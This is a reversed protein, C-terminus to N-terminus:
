ARLHFRQLLLKLRRDMEASGFGLTQIDELRERASPGSYFSSYTALREFEELASAVVWNGLAAGPDVNDFREGPVLFPERTDVRGTQYFSDILRTLADVAVSRAGYDRAIRALSALRLYSPQRSCLGNLTNFGVELAAFREDLSMSTDRCAAYAALAKEVELSGDSATTAEWRNFLLTGYPLKALAQRWDYAATGEIKESLRKRREATLSTAGVADVLFGASSLKESRDKKCSFLNLLYADPTSDPMFSVLANIGPVLRYSDYGIEGFRRVLDLNFHADVKIEYMVLPSLDAFFQKGGKLINGEEGEADIKVFDINKWDFRILCEDLTVVPVIESSTLSPNDRVLANLESNDNLSLMATGSSGSVASRQIDVNMFDGASVGQALFQATSSAPEFAWVHGTPGIRQAMCLTYVGYNAGIDIVKCGSQLAVRLFKIEDEFWDEQELLVYPTILNLSDPVVVRVGDILTITTSSTVTM